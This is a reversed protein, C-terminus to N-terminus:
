DITLLRRLDPLIAEVVDNEAGFYFGRIQGARDV